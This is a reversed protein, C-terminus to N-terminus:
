RGDSVAKKNRRPDRNRACERCLSQRGNSKNSRMRDFAALPKAAKCDCCVKDTNPNGGARLVNTRVHLLLHYARDQCIVLPATDSKSGDAHHVEAGLPLPHGLAREARAVHLRKRRSQPGPASRYSKIALMRSGHGVRYRHPQGKVDGRALDTGKAITTPLGCGCECIGTRGLSPRPERRSV